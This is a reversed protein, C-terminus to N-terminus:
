YFDMLANKSLELSASKELRNKYQDDCDTSGLEEYGVIGFIEENDLTFELPYFVVEDGIALGMSERKEACSCAGM